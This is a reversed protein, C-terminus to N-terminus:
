SRRPGDGAADGQLLQAMERAEEDAQAIRRKRIELIRQLAADPLGMDLLEQLLPDVPESEPEPHKIGALDDHGAARLAQERPVRLIDAVLLAAAPKPQQIQGGLWKSILGESIEGRSHEALYKQPRGALAARLWAAWTQQEGEAMGGHDSAVQSLALREPTVLANM